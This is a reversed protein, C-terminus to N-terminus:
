NSKKLLYDDRAIGKFQNKEKNYQLNEHVLIASGDKRKYITKSSVVGDKKVKKIKNIIDKKSELADFDYINLSLMESKNYGLRNSMNDNCDLIKANENFIFISDFENVSWIDDVKEKKKIKEDPNKLKKKEHQNLIETIEIKLSNVENKLEEIKNENIKFKSIEIDVGRFGKLNGENDYFPIFNTLLCIKEGNKNINWKEFNKISERKKSSTNFIEKIKKVNDPSVYDFVSYGIVEESNYGLFNSINKSCFTYLGKSDVEWAWGNISELLDQQKKEFEEKSKINEDFIEGKKVGVKVIALKLSAMIRNLSETLNNIENIETFDLEVDLKGKSITDINKTLKEIPRTIYYSIVISLIFTLLFILAMIIISTSNIGQTGGIIAIPITSVSIFM